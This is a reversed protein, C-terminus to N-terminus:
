LTGGDVSAEANRFAGACELPWGSEFAQASRERVLCLSQIQWQGAIEGGCPEVPACSGGAADDDDSCALLCSLLALWSLASNPMSFLTSGCSASDVAGCASWFMAVATDGPSRRM